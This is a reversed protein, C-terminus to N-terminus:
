QQQGDWGKRGRGKRGTRRKRKSSENVDTYVDRRRRRGEDRRRDRWRSNRRWAGERGERSFFDLFFSCVLREEVTAAPAPAPAPAPAAPAAATTTAAATAM